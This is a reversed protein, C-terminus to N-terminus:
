ETFQERGLIYSSTYTLQQALLLLEAYKKELVERPMIEIMERVTFPYPAPFTSRLDSLYNAIENIKEYATNTM